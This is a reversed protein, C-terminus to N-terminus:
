SNAAHRVIFGKQDMWAFLEPRITAEPDQPDFSRYLKGVLDTHLTQLTCDKLFCVSKGLALMYGVELSVNPNFEDTEIREFVAIGFRVGYMYTLINFYLDDHYQKEDARLAVMGHPDLASRIGSLVRQHAPTNGFRMMIFALRSSDPFDSRFRALSETIEVPPRHVSVDMIPAFNCDVARFGAPTIICTRTEEHVTQTVSTGFESSRTQHSASSFLLDEATLVDLALRTLFPVQLMKGRGSIGGGRTLWFVTFEEPIEGERVGKVLSRLLEKHSHNLREL